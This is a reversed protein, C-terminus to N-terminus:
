DNIEHDSFFEAGNQMKAKVVYNGPKLNYFLYLGEENTTKLQILCEKEKEIQYLAVVAGCLPHGDCCIVGSVTNKFECSYPCLEIDEKTFCCPEVIVVHPAPMEFWQKYARIEYKGPKLNIFLYQGYKNSLAQAVHCMTDKEFLYILAEEVPCHASKNTIEGYLVGKKECVEKKLEFNVVKEDCEKLELGVVKSMEYGEATAAIKYCGAKLCYIFAYRGDSNTLTHAVPCFKEDFVKVAANAVPKGCSTVRGAVLITQMDCCRKLKLCVDKEEDKVICFEESKELIFLEKVPM